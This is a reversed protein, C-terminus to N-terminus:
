RVDFSLRSWRTVRSNFPVKGGDGLRGEKSVAALCRRKFTSLQDSISAVTTFSAYTCIRASPGCPLRGGASGRSNCPEYAKHPFLDVYEMANVLTLSCGTFIRTEVARKTDQGIRSSTEVWGM